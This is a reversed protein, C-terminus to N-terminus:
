NKIGPTIRALNGPSSVFEWIKEPSADIYQSRSLKYVKAMKM